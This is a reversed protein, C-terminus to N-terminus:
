LSKVEAIKSNPMLIKFTTGEESSVFSIVGGMNDVHKKVMALGFGNGEAQNNHARFFLQFVNKQYAKPIGLGNDKVEFEIGGDSGDKTNVSVYPQKNKPNSYKVANSM